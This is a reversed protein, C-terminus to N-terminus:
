NSCNRRRKCTYHLRRGTIDFIQDDNPRLKYSKMYKLAINGVNKGIELFKFKSLFAELEDLSFKRKYTLQYIVESFVIGNICLEVKDVVKLLHKNIELATSNKKLGEIIVSSDLFVPVRM